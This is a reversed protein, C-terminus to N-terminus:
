LPNPAMLLRRQEEKTMKAFQDEQDTEEFSHDNSNETSGTFSSFWSLHPESKSGGKAMQTQEIENLNLNSSLLAANAMLLSM